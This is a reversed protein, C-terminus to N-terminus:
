TPETHRARYLAGIFELYGAFSIADTSKVVCEPTPRGFMNNGIVDPSSELEPVSQTAAVQVSNAPFKRAAPGILRFWVLIPTGVKYWGSGVDFVPADGCLLEAVKFVKSALAHLDPPAKALEM